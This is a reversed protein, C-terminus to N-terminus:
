PKPDDSPPEGFPRTVKDTPADGDSDLPDDALGERYMLDMEEERLQKEKDSLLNALVRIQQAAGSATSEVSRALWHLAIVAGRLAM